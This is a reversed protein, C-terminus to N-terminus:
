QGGGEAMEAEKEQFEELLSQINDIDKHSPLFFNTQKWEGNGIPFSKQITLALEGKLTRFVNLWIRGKHLSDIKEM